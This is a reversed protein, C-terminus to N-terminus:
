EQKVGLFEAAVEQARETTHVLPSEPSNTDLAQKGDPHKEETVDGFQVFDKYGEEILDLVEPISMCATDRDSFQFNEVRASLKQQIVPAIKSGEIRGALNARIQSSKAAALENELAQMRELMAPDESFQGVMGGTMGTEHTVQKSEGKTLGEPNQSTAGETRGKKINRCATIFLRQGEPTNLDVTDPLEVGEDKALAMLDDAITPEMTETTMSSEMESFTIFEDVSESVWDTESLQICEIEGQDPNRPSPTLAMHRIVVGHNRNVGDVYVGIEPSSFRITGNSLGERISEDGVNSVFSLSGDSEQTIHKLWGCNDTAKRDGPGVSGPPAHGNLMPVAVGKKIMSNTRNRLGRLQDSTFKVVQHGIRYFGPKLFNKQKIDM